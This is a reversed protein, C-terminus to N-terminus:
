PVYDHGDWHLVKHTITGGACDPTCDNSNQMTTYKGDSGQGQLDAYRYAHKGAYHTDPYDWGMDEFGDISSILVHVGNYRGPNYTV